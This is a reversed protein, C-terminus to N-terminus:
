SIVCGLVVFRSTDCGLVLNAKKPVAPNPAYSMIKMYIRKGSYHHYMIKHYYLFLYQKRIFFLLYSLWKNRRWKSIWAWSIGYQKKKSSFFFCYPIMTTDIENNYKKVTRKMTYSITDNWFIYYRVFHWKNRRKVDDRKMTNKCDTITDNNIIEKNRWYM